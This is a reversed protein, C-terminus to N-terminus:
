CPNSLQLVVQTAVDSAGLCPLTDGDRGMAADDRFKNRGAGRGPATTVIPELVEHQRTDNPCREFRAIREFGPRVDAQRAACGGTQDVAVTAFRLLPERGSRGSALEAGAEPVDDSRM